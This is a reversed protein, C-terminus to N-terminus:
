FQQRWPGICINYRRIDDSGLKDTNTKDSDIKDTDTNDSSIEDTQTEETQITNIEMQGTNIEDAQTGETNLGNASMNSANLQGVDLQGITRNDINKDNQNGDIIVSWGDLDSGPLALGKAASCNKHFGSWLVKAGSNEASNNIVNKSHEIMRCNFEDIDPLGTVNCFKDIFDQKQKVSLNEINKIIDIKTDNNQIDQILNDIYQSEYGKFSVKNYNSMADLGNLKSNNYIISNNNKTKNNKINENITIENNIIGLKNIKMLM